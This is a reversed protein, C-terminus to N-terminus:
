VPLIELIEQREPDREPAELAPALVLGARHTQRMDLM